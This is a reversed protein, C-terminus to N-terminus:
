NPICLTKLYVGSKWAQCSYQTRDFNKGEFNMAEKIKHYIVKYDTYCVLVICQDNLSGSMHLFGSHIIFYNKGM